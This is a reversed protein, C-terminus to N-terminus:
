TIPGGGTGPAHIAVEVSKFRTGCIVCSHYRVRIGNEVPRTTTTFTRGASCRPCMASRTEADFDVSLGGDSTYAANFVTPASDLRIAVAASISEPKEREPRSAAALVTGAAKTSKAM